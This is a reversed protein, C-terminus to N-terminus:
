DGDSEGDDDVDAHAADAARDLLHAQYGAWMAQAIRDRRENAQMRERPGAPGRALDGRDEGHAGEGELRENDFDQIEAPDHACIFNHITALAPPVRVQISMSYEPPRTLSAFRRKFIGFIREIANRASAHRLNYLEEPTAPSSLFM